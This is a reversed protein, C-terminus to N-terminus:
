GDYEEENMQDILNEVADILPQGEESTLVGGYILSRVHNRMANLMNTAVKSKASDLKAAAQELKTTLSEAQGQNLSGDALIGDLIAM